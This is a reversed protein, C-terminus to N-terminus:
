FSAVPYFEVVGDEVLDSHIVFSNESDLQQFVLDVDSTVAVDRPDFCCIMSHFEAIICKPICEGRIHWQIEYQSKEELDGISVSPSVAQQQSQQQQSQQQQGEKEEMDIEYSKYTSSWGTSMDEEEEMEYYEYGSM